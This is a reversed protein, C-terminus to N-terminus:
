YYKNRPCIKKRSICIAFGIIYCTYTFIITSYLIIQRIKVFEISIKRSYFSSYIFLPPVCLHFVIAGIAIYFILNNNFELIKESKLMEFFYFFVSTVVILTGFIMPFATHSKFFVDTVLLYSISIVLFVITLINLVQKFRLNTLNWKFFSIYFWYSVITFSNYMWANYEVFTGKLFSLYQSGEIVFPLNGFLEVVVNLCLFYVFYRVVSPTQYKSIYYIGILASLVESLQFFIQLFKM